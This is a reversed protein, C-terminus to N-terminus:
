LYISLSLSLPLSISLSFYFFSSVSLLLSCSLLPSLSFFLSLYWSFLFPSFSFFLPPPLHLMLLSLSLSWMPFCASLSNFSLSTTIKQTKCSYIWKGFKCGYFIVTSFFNYICLKLPKKLIDNKVLKLHCKGLFTFICINVRLTEFCPKNYVFM